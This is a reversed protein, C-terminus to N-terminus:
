GPPQATPAPPVPQWQQACTKVYPYYSKSAGCYYWYSQDAGPAAQAGPPPGDYGMDPYADSDDYYGYGPDGYYGYGWYPAGYLGIGWGYGGYGGYWGGHGYGGGHWGGGHGGGGHFGGGGHGGGGGGGGHGGYALAGGGAFITAILGLTAAAAITKRM